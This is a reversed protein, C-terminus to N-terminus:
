GRRKPNDIAPNGTKKVDLEERRVTEKADVTDKEVEKRVSVEERVFAQKRVEASEEHVEVRAVEGERFNAEGPAVAKGQTPTTREIVVREKEVPVSVEATSTEVRKGVAVEGTKYRDKNTVLQEEYLRLKQHDRDNMEYLEPDNDYGYTNRDYTKTTSKMAAAGTSGAAMPRYASRVREEYDYDVTMDDNYDPLREVQDKDVIGTAQLRRDTPSFNSRGVPLLVKKGFIWFGTDVVFYRIHGSDDVLVDHVTGVKDNNANGAYVDLGKIDEGGFLQDRYGPYRDEIKYLAM